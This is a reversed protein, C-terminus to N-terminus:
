QNIFQIELIHRQILLLDISTPKVATKRINASKIYIENMREIELIHRQLVLLDIGNIKGDGNNDGYLIIKYERLINGNEKVLIRSGTGVLSTEELIEGKNNIFEIDLNTIILNRLDSVKNNQYDLGSVELSEVRLPSEFHIESDEMKRVVIVKCESKIGSNEKSSAVITSEGIQKATIIGNEDIDM